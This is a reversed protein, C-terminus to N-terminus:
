IPAPRRQRLAITANLGRDLRYDFTALNDIRHGPRHEVAAAPGQPGSSSNDQAPIVDSRRDLLEMPTFETYWAISADIDKVRLAIHTWRPAPPLIQHLPESM